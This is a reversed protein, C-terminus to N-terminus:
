FDRTVFNYVQNSQVITDTVQTVTSEITEQEADSFLFDSLNEYISKGSLTEIALDAASFALGIPGGFAYGGVLESIPSIDHEIEAQYIDSVLPVHNLINVTDFVDAVALGDEGTLYSSMDEFSDWTNSLSDLQEAGDMISTTTESVASSASDTVSSFLSAQLSSLLSSQMDAISSLSTLQSVGDGLVDSFGIASMLSQQISDITSEADMFDEAAGSDDSDGQLMSFLGAFGGSFAEDTSVEATASTDVESSTDAGWLSQLNDIVTM